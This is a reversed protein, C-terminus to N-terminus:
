WGGGLSRSGCTNVIARRLEDPATRILEADDLLGQALLLLQRAIRGVKRDAADASDNM